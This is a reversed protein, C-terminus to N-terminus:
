FTYGVTGTITGKRLVTDADGGWTVKAMMDDYKATLGMNIKKEGEEFRGTMHSNGDVDHTFRFTSELNLGPMAVDNWNAGLMVNYGWSFRDLREDANESADEGFWDSSGKAVYRDYNDLGSVQQFAAEGVVYMLDTGVVAGFPQIVSLSADWVPTREHNQYWEGVTATRSGDVHSASWEGSGYISNGATLAKALLDEPHDIWIPMNEAYTIEGAIQTYGFVKTNFSAGWLKIDEGYSTTAYTANNMLYLNGITDSTAGAAAGAATLLTPDDDILVDITPLSSHYNAYYLAFETDPISEPAYTFSLGWQGNNDAKGTGSTDAVRIYAEEYEFLPANPIGGLATNVADLVLTKFANVDGGTAINAFTQLDYHAFDSGPVFIDEGSGYTGRGPMISGEWDYQVFGSLTMQDNFQLDAMLMGQALNLDGDSGPVTALAMDYANLDMLGGGYFITEGWNHTQDGLKVSLKQGGDFQWDAFVYASQLKVGRGQNDKVEDSWGPFTGSEDYLGKAVDADNNEQWHNTGNMLVHDYYATARGFFGYNDKKVDLESTVKLAKSVFGKKFSRDGDNELQENSEPTEYGELDYKAGLTITTNLTGQVEGDMAEFEFAQASASLLLTGSLIFGATAPALQLRKKPTLM